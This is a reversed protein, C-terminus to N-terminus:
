PFGFRIMGLIVQQMQDMIADISKKRVRLRKKVALHQKETWAVFKQHAAIASVHMNM